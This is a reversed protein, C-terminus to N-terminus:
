KTTEADNLRQFRAAVKHGQCTVDEEDDSDSNLWSELSETIFEIWSPSISGPRCRVFHLVVGLSSVAPRNHRLFNFKNAGVTPPGECTRVLKTRSLMTFKTNLCVKSEDEHGTFFCSQIWSIDSSWQWRQSRQELSNKCNRQLSCKLLGKANNEPFQVTNLSSSM